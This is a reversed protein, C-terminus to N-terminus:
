YSEWSKKFVMGYANMPEITTQEDDISTRGIAVRLPRPFLMGESRVEDLLLGVLTRSIGRRLGAQHKLITARVEYSGQSRLRETLEDLRCARYILPEIM